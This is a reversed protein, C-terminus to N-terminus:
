KSFFISLFLHFFYYCRSQLWIPCSVECCSIDLSCYYYFLILDVSLKRNNQFILNLLCGLAGTILAYWKSIIKDEVFVDINLFMTGYLLLTIIVTAAITQLRVTPINLNCLCLKNMTWFVALQQQKLVPMLINLLKMCKMM